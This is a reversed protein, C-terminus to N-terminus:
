PTRHTRRAKYIAPPTHGGGGGVGRERTATGHTHTYLSNRTLLDCNETFVRATRNKCNYLNDM